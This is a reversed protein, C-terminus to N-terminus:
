RQYEDPDEKLRKQLWDDEGDIVSEDKIDTFRKKIGSVRMKLQKEDKKERLGRLIMLAAALIFLFGSLALLVGEFPLVISFGIAALYVKRQFRLGQVLAVV